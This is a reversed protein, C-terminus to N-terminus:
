VQGAAYTLIGRAVALGTILQVGVQSFFGTAKQMPNNYNGVTSTQTLPLYEGYAMLGSANDPTKAAMYFTATTSSELSDLYNSRFIPVGDFTGIFGNLQTYFNPGPTFKTPHNQLESAGRTGTVMVSAPVNCSAIFQTRLDIFFKSILDNKTEAFSTLTYTSLNLAVQVAALAGAPVLIQLLKRNIDEIYLNALRGFAVSRDDGLGSVRSANQSIKAMYMNAAENEEFVFQHPQTQLQINTFQSKIRLINTGAEDKTADLLATTSVVFGASLGSAVTVIGTIYNVTTPATIGNFYIVGDAQFDKGTFSQASNNTITVSVTGPVLYENYDVALSAGSATASVTLNSPGTTVATNPPTFNGQVVDGAAVTGTGTVAVLNQFYITDAPNAMSRDIALFPVLSNALLLITVDIAGLTTVNSVDAYGAGGSNSFNALQQAFPDIEENMNRGKSLYLNKAINIINSFTQELGKHDRLPAGDEPCPGYRLWNTARELKGVVTSVYQDESIKRAM